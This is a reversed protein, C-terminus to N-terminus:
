RIEIVEGESLVRDPKGPEHAEELLYGALRVVFHSEREPNIAIDHSVTSEGHVTIIERYIGDEVKQINVEIPRRFAPSINSPITWSLRVASGEQSYSLNEVKPLSHGFVKLDVIDRDHCSSIMVTALVVTLIRVFNKMM